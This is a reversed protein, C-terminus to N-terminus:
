VSYFPKVARTAVGLSGPFLLQHEDANTAVAMDVAQQSIQHTSFTVSM